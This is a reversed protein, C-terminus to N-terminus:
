RSCVPKFVALARLGQKQTLLVLGLLQIQSVPQNFYNVENAIETCPVFTQGFSGTAALSVCLSVCVM